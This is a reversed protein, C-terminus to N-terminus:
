KEYKESKRKWNNLLWEVFFSPLIKAIYNSFAPVAPFDIRKKGANIKKIIYEAAKDANMIFPMPYKNGATMDTKVFGPKITIVKIDYPKLEVRAAQMFHSLAIKSAAYSASGPLGFGDALSGVGAITGHGRSKMIKILEEMAYAIGFLNVDFVKEFKASDFSIMKNDMGIGANLIAIDISGFLENTRKIANIMEEKNSVDCSIYEAKYGSKRLDGCINKLDEESRAIMMVNNGSGAYQIALEKGIGRSAGTIFINKRSM